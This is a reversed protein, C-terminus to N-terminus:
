GIKEFHYAVCPQELLIGEETREGLREFMAEMQAKAEPLKEARRPDVAIISQLYTDFDPTARGISYDRKSRLEFRGKDVLQDLRAQSKTRVETEDDLAAMVDSMPGGPRPETFHLRGGSKLVRWAEALAVEQLDDPV